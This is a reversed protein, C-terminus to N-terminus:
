GSTANSETTPCGSNKTHVKLTVVARPPVTCVARGHEVICPAVPHEDLRTMWAQTVRGDPGARVLRPADAANWFRFVLGGSGDEPVKCATLVVGPEADVLSFAGPLAGDHQQSATVYLPVAYGHADALLLWPESSGRTRVCLAYEAVLRRLFYGDQVPHDAGACPGLHGFSRILTLYLRTGSPTNVAEFEPLGRNFLAFCSTQDGLVTVTQQPYAEM